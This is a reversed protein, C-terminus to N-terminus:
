SKHINVLTAIIFPKHQWLLYCQDEIHIQHHLEMPRHIDEIHMRYQSRFPEIFESALNTKFNYELRELLKKVSDIIWCSCPWVIPMERIWFKREKTLDIFIQVECCPPEHHMLLGSIKPMCKFDKTEIKKNWFSHFIEDAQQSSICGIM